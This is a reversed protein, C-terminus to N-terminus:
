WHKPILQHYKNFSRTTNYNTATNTAVLANRLWKKLLVKNKFRM